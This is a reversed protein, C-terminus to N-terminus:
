MQGVIESPSTPSQDCALAAIGALGVALVLCFNRRGRMMQMKDKRRSESIPVTGRLHPVTGALHPCDGRASITEMEITPSLGRQYGVRCASTGMDCGDSRAPTGSLDVRTVRRRASM